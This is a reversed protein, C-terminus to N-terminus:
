MGTLTIFSERDSRVIGAMLEFGPRCLLVYNEKEEERPIRGIDRFVCRPLCFFLCFLNELTVHQCSVCLETIPFLLGFPFLKKKKLRYRGAGFTLLFWSSHTKTMLM